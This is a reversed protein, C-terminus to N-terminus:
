PRNASQWSTISAAVSLSGTLRAIRASSIWCTGASASIAVLVDEIEIVRRAAPVSRGWRKMPMCKMFGTGAIFSTSSIRPMAVSSSVNRAIRSTVSFSPLVATVASSKGAKM